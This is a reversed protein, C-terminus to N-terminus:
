NYEAIPVHKMAATHVVYDIDKMARVLREKDRVDGIFFRVQPYKDVPYEHAMQYQKQEDRSFIVLRKVEPNHKLIHSTLAKGLSGTGGTILISKGTLEM